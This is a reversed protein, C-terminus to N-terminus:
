AAGVLAYGRSLRRSAERSVAALGDMESRQPRVLSRGHRTVTSGWIQWLEVEGFLDRQLRLEYFRQTEAKEYRLYTAHETAVFM